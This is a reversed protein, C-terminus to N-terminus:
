PKIKKSPETQCNGTVTNHDYGQPCTFQPEAVCQGSGADYTLAPGCTTGPPPTYSCTGGSRSVTQGDSAAPCSPAVQGGATACTDQGAVGFYVYGSPCASAECKGTAANYAYSGACETGPAPSGTCMGTAPDYASDAPCEATPPRECQKTANNYTSGEPCIKAATATSGGLAMACITFALVVLGGIRCRANTSGTMRRVM